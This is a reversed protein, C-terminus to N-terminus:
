SSIPGTIESTIALSLFIASSSFIDFLCWDNVSSNAETVLSSTSFTGLRIFFGLFSSLNALDLDNSKKSLVSSVFSVALTVLDISGNDFAGLAFSIGIFDPDITSITCLKSFFGGGGSVTFSTPGLFSDKCCGVVGLMSGFVPEKGRSLGYQLVNSCLRNDCGSLDNFSGGGRLGRGIGGRVSSVGGGGGSNVLADSCSIMAVAAECLLVLPTLRWSELSDTFDRISLISFAAFAALCDGAVVGTPSHGCCVVTPTVVVVDVDIFFPMASEVAGVFPMVPVVKELLGGAARPARGEGM